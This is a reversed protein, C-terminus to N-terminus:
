LPPSDIAMYANWVEDLPGDQKVSGRELWIARDCFLRLLGLSHSSVVVAKAQHAIELMRAQAKRAFARDGASLVEDIILIDPQMATVISFGLRIRMGASYAIVPMDLFEGLESFEAVREIIAPVDHSPVGFMASALIINQRGTDRQHMGLTSTLLSSVKGRIGCSGISPSYIGSMIRLLSSKGAGNHGIVALREGETVTLNVNRLAVVHRAGRETSVRGGVRSAHLKAVSPASGRFPLYLCVGDLRILWDPDSSNLAMLAM